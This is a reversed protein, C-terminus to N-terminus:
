PLRPMALRPPIDHAHAFVAAPPQGHRAPGARARAATKAVPVLRTRFFPTTRTASAHGGSHGDASSDPQVPRALPERPRELRRTHLHALGRPRRWRRHRHDHRETGIRRHGGEVGEAPNPRGRVVAPAMRVPHYVVSKIKHKEALAMGAAGLEATLEVVERTAGGSTKIHCFGSDPWDAFSGTTGITGAGSAGLQIADSVRQSAGPAVALRVKVLVIVSEISQM